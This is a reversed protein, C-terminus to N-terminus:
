IEVWGISYGQILSFLQTVDSGKHLSNDHSFYVNITREPPTVEALCYYDRFVAIINAKPLRTLDIQFGKARAVSEVEEWSSAKLYGNM